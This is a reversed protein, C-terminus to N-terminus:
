NEGEDTQDEKLRMAAFYRAIMEREEKSADTNELKEMEERFYKEFEEWYPTEGDKFSSAYPDDDPSPAGSQEPDDTPSEGPKDSPPADEEAKGAAGEQSGNNESESDHMSGNPDLQDLADGISGQMQDNLDSKQNEEGLAESISDKADSIASDSKESASESDGKEADSAADKLQDSLDKLADSLPDGEQGAKDLASDISSALDELEKKMEEDSGAAAADIKDKIEDLADKVAESDGKEIADGLNETNEFKKLEEGLQEHTQKDKLQERIKDATEVIKDIKEQTSDIDKLSEELDDVIQHLDDKVEQKVSSNDIEDRLDGLLGDIISSEDKKGAEISQASFVGISNPVIVMSLNFLCFIGAVIIAFKPIAIKMKKSAPSEIKVKVDERQVKAMLNDSDAMQLMTIAREEYGLQDIREAVKKMTPRFAFFYFLAAAGATIALTLAVALWTGNFSVEWGQTKSLWSLLMVFAGVAFGIIGGSLISKLLAEKVLKVRYKKFIDTQIM